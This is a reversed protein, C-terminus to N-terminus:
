DLENVRVDKPRVKIGLMSLFFSSFIIQTGIIIFTSGFLAMRIENLPGFDNAIWKILIYLDTSFGLLFVLVGAVLGRELNFLKFAKKMNSDEPRFHHTVAYIRAYVGMNILQFGLIAMLSGLVMIHLDFLVGAIKIPGPLLAFLLVFGIIFIITGPWLYLHTPSHVLMFRLHRWGDRFSRLHPPRSRGDPHLPIPTEVTRLGLRASKIVMESAFEMGTTQLNMKQYAARTFARMGCHADSIGSRYMFNLIWTLVPNGVYRHLWPMAGKEIRGKLRSGIVFDAGDALPGVFREIDNFDYSDDSDGIIIYDGLAASIGARYANGYGREEEIVVRAGLSTAIEVSGDTSGNDAVIIESDYSMRALSNRAKRICTALTEKENLCPMVVSIKPPM